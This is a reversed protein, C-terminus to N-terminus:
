IIIGNKKSKKMPMCYRQQSIGKETSVYEYKLGAFDKQVGVSLLSLGEEVIVRLCLVFM